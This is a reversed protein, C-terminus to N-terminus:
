GHQVREEQKRRHHFYQPSQEHERHPTKNILLQLNYNSTNRCKAINQMTALILNHPVPILSKTSQTPAHAQTAPPGATPSM